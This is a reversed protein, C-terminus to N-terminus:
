KKNIGIYLLNILEKKAQPPQFEPDYIVKITVGHIAHFIANAIIEPEVDRIEEKCLATAIIKELLLPAKEIFNEVENCSSQPIMTEKVLLKTVPFNDEIKEFHYNLFNILKNQLSIDQNNLNKLLQLKDDLIEGFIENLIEKKNDYYKNYEKLTLCAKNAIIENNIEDFDNKYLLKKFTLVINKRNNM